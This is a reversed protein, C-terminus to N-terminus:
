LIEFCFADKFTISHIIKTWSKKKKLPCKKVVYLTLLHCPMLINKFLSHVIYLINVNPFIAEKM